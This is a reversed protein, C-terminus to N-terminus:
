DTPYQHRDYFEARKGENFFEVKRIYGTIRQYMDLKSGCEPCTDQLDDIYGHVKCYRNIPSISIYPLSYNECSTKIIHKAQDKNIPGKMYLHVVTGGTFQTQLEDQHALTNNITEVDSVPLHCSNTYYPSTPTGQTYIGPFDDNDKKALRYATSEAPTAEYNYLNGTEKQFIVLSKRIFESVEMAFTKGSYTGNEEDIGVGLLNMCMENMGVVGITSFHNDLTGVYTEFAPLAGKNFIEEQLFKRKVELSDKALELCKQLLRFFYAVDRDALYAIRPLNVTVVGISGTSDGSGFLGGNRKRLETLDLRLRCCMSRADEPNMDSNIFNAFYPYGYKGAM